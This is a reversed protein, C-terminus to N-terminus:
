APNRCKEDSMTNPSFVICINVIVSEECSYYSTHAYLSWVTLPWGLTQRRGFYQGGMAAGRVALRTHVKGGKIRPSSVSAQHLPPPPDITRFVDSVARYKRYIYTSQPTHPLFPITYTRSLFLNVKHVQLQRESVNRRNEKIFFTASVADILLSSHRDHISPIGKLGHKFLLSNSMFYIFLYCFLM